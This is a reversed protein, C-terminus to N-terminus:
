VLVRGVVDSSRYTADLVVGVEALWSLDADAHRTHLLV